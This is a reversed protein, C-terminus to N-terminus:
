LFPISYVEVDPHVHESLTGTMYDNDGFLTALSAKMSALDITM